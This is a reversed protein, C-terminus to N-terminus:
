VSSSLQNRQSYSEIKKDVYDLYKGLGEARQIEKQEKEREELFQHLEEQVEPNTLDLSKPSPKGNKKRQKELRKAGIKTDSEEKAYSRQTRASSYKEPSSEEKYSITSSSSKKNIGANIKQEVQEMRFSLQQVRFESWALAICVIIITPLYEKM